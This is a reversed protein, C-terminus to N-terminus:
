QFSSIYKRYSQLIYFIEPLQKASPVEDNIRNIAFCKKPHLGSMRPCIDSNFSLERRGAKVEM